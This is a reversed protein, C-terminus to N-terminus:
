RPRCTRPKCQKGTALVGREYVSVDRKKAFWLVTVRGRGVRVEQPGETRRHGVRKTLM